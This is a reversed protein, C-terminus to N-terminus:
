PAAWCVPRRILSFANLIKRIINTFNEDGTVVTKAFHRIRLYKNNKDFETKYINSTYENDGVNRSLKLQQFTM